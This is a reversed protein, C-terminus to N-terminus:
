GPIPNTDHSCIYKPGELGRPVPNSSSKFAMLSGAERLREVWHLISQGDNRDIRRIDATTVFQDRTAAM